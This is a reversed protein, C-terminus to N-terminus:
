LGRLKAGATEGPQAAGCRGEGPLADPLPSDAPPDQQSGLRGSLLWGPAPPAKGVGPKGTRVQSQPLEAPEAGEGCLRFGVAWLVWVKSSLSGRLLGPPPLFPCPPSVLARNGGSSSM